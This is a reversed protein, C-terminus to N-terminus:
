LLMLLPHCANVRGKVALHFEVTNHTRTVYDGSEDPLVQTEVAQSDPFISGQVSTCMNKHTKHAKPM